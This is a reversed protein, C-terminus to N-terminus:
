DHLDFEDHFLHDYRCAVTAAEDIVVYFDQDAPLIAADSNEIRWRRLASVYRLEIPHADVGSYGPMVHIQACPEGNIVFHDLTTYSSIGAEPAFWHFANLSPDQAYIHFDLGAPFNASADSQFLYWRNGLSYAAAFPHDFASGLRHTALVVRNPKANLYADDIQTGFGSVNGASSTHLLTGAGPAPAFVNFASGGTFLAGGENRVRYHNSLYDFGTYRINSNAQYSEAMRTPTLQPRANVLGNLAANDIASASGANSVNRQTLSADGLEFAGIDALSTAGKFRRLGDADIEPLVKNTLLTHLATSDAADIAPSGSALRADAVGRRLVPNSSITGAGATFFNSTNGFVLNHDNGFGAANAAPIQIGVANYAILNNALRGTLAGSNSVGFGYNCDVVTNNLVRADFTGSAATDMILGIGSLGTCSIANSVAVVTLATSTNLPTVSIGSSLNGSIQNAYILASSNANAYLTIGRMGQAGTSSFRNDHISGNFSGTGLVDLYIGPPQSVNGIAVHVRNEAIDFNLTGSGSNRMGIGSTFTSVQNLTTIDLGRLTVTANGEGAQAIVMGDLLTFGEIDVSWNTGAAPTYHASITSGAALVPRYGPAAILHLPKTVYLYPGPNITSATQVYVTDNSNAADICAQLTGNCPAAVNPWYLANAHLSACLVFLAFGTGRAIVM